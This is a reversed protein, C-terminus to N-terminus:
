EAVCRPAPRAPPEYPKALRAETHTVRDRRMACERVLVDVVVQCTSRNDAPEAMCERKRDDAHACSDNAEDRDRAVAQQLWARQREAAEADEDAALKALTAIADDCRARTSMRSYTTSTGRAPEGTTWRTANRQDTAIALIWAKEDQDRPVVLLYSGPRARLPPLAGPGCAHTVRHNPRVRQLQMVEDVIWECIAQARADDGDIAVDTWSVLEDNDDRVEVRANRNAPAPALLM